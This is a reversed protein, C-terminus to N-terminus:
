GNRTPADAPFRANIRRKDLGARLRPGRADRGCATGRGSRLAPDGARTVSSRKAMIKLGPLAAPTAQPPWIRGVPAM